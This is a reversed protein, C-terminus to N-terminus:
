QMSSDRSPITTHLSQVLDELALQKNLSICRRIAKFVFKKIDAPTRGDSEKALLLTSDPGFGFPSLLVELLAKRGEIDMKKFELILDFRRDMAFDVNEKLNTAAIVLINDSPKIKEIERLFANVAAKVEDHQEQILRSLVVTDFEDCFLLVTKSLALHRIEEFLKLVLETSRGVLRDRLSGVEVLLVEKGLSRALADAIGRAFSTKGTGSIGYLMVKGKSNRQIMKAISRSYPYYRNVWGELRRSDICQLFYDLVEQKEADLGVLEDWMMRLNEDPAITKKIIIKSDEPQHDAYVPYIEIRTLPSIRGREPNAAKVKIKVTFFKFLKVDFEQGKLITLGKIEKKVETEIAEMLERNECRFGKTQIAIEVSRLWKETLTEPCATEIM